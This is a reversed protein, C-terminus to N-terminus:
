SEAAADIVIGADLVPYKRFEPHGPEAYVLSGGQLPGPWDVVVIRSRSLNQLLRLPEVKLAPLFLLEISKLFVLAGGNGSLPEAPAEGEMREAVIQELLPPAELSRQRATLELLAQSLEMGVNVCPAHLQDAAATIGAAKADCAPGAM